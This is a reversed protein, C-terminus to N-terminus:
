FRLQIVTKPVLYACDRWLGYPRFIDELGMAENGAITLPSILAFIVEIGLIIVLKVTIDYSMEHDPVAGTPVM